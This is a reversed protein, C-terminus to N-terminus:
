EDGEKVRVNNFGWRVDFKSFIKADKIRNLVDSILPLPWSDRITAANIRRYDQVPRLNGDKKKVFFFPAAVPSNSPRIRGSKLNEDLFADLEKQETPSMPYVKGKLKRDETANPKLNIAHDWPRRDPLRDFEKKEFVDVYDKYQDPVTM